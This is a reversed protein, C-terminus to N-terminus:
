EEKKNSDKKKCGSCMGCHSDARLLGNLDEFVDKIAVMHKDRLRGRLCMVWCLNINDWFREEPLGLLDCFLSIIVQPPFVLTIGSELCYVGDIMSPSTIMSIGLQGFLRKHMLKLIRYFQKYDAAHRKASRFKEQQLTTSLEACEKQREGWIREAKEARAKMEELEKKLRENEQALDAKEKNLKEFAKHAWMKGFMELTKLQVCPYDDPFTEKGGEFDTADSIARGITYLFHEGSSGDMPDGRECIIFKLLHNIEAPFRFYEQYAVLINGYLDMRKETHLEGCEKLLKHYPKVDLLEAVRELYIMQRSCQGLYEKNEVKQFIEFIAEKLGIKQWHEGYKEQSEKIVKKRVAEKALCKGSDKKNVQYEVGNKEKIEYDYDCECELEPGGCEPNEANVIDILAVEHGGEDWTRLINYLLGPQNLKSRDIMVAGKKLTSEM